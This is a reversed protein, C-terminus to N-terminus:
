NNQARHHQCSPQIPRAEHYTELLNLAIQVLITQNKADGLAHHTNKLKINRFFLNKITRVDRELHYSIPWHRFQLTAHRLIALDFSPSNAWVGQIKQPANSYWLFFTNLALDIPISGNPIPLKQNNWWDVTNPEEILNFTKCSKRCIEIYFTDYLTTQDFMTAGISLISCGPNIGLTEIDVM